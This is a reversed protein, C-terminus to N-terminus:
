RIAIAGSYSHVAAFCCLIAGWIIICAASYKGLPLRQLLRSTPYEWALYGKNRVDNTHVVVNEEQHMTFSLMLWGFYFLSGLWQYEDGELNLDPKLGM